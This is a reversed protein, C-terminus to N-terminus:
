FVDNPESDFFGLPWETLYGDSDFKSERVRTAGELTNQDFIYIGIDDASIAGKEVAKGLQNIIVESHTEIVLKFENSSNGPGILNVFLDALRAQMKPHLHLEPQEIAFFKTAERYNKKKAMVWLQAIIPLVQSYGFGTDALNVKQTGGADSLVISVHGEYNKARAEFGMAKGTWQAFSEADEHSLNKLFMALNNGQPDIEDVALGQIRYYREATARLPTIYQISHCTRNLFEGVAEFVGCFNKGILLSTIKLVDESEATWSSIKYKWHAGFDLSRLQRLVASPSGPYLRNATVGINEIQKNKHTHKKIIEIIKNHYQLQSDVKDVEVINPLLDFSRFLVYNNPLSTFDEGGVVLKLIKLKENIALKIETEFISISYETMLPSSPTPKEPLISIALEARVTGEPMRFRFRAARIIHRTSINMEFIFEIKKSVSSRSLAEDFSGFDVLPGYWLIESLTKVQASQKLLPLTRIFTSKGSSNQGVFVNIKKFTIVGTDTLSRLNRIRLSEM